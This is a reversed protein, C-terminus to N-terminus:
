KETWIYKTEIAPLFYISLLSSVLNIYHPIKQFFKLFNVDNTKEIEIAPIFHPEGLAYLKEIGNAISIYDPETVVGVINNPVMAALAGVNTVLM